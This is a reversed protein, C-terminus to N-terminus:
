AEDPDVIEEHPSWSDGGLPGCETRSLATSAVIQPTFDDVVRTVM